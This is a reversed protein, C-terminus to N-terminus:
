ELSLAKMWFTMPKESELADGCDKWAYRAVLDARRRYGFAEWIADLPEYGEPRAPHSSSREVACFACSVFGSARAFTERGELFRRYLGRGRYAPRVLSEGCYFIHEVAEGAAVFPARTEDPEAVLPAGTSAGVVSGDSAFAILAVSGPARVYTHLYREEYARDGDYLYPFTRFIDLRLTALTDVHTAIEAGVFRRVELADASM